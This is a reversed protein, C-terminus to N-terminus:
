LILKMSGYMGADNGLTALTIKSGRCGHFAIKEFRETTLDILYQGAKSVGGGIVFAEPNVVSSIVQLGQALYDCAREAVEIALKDGAKAADFVAKADVKEVDRLTSADDNEDLRIKALRAIGTASCYQELCGKNGCGCALEETYNVRIHGIEGAAGAAGTIIEDNIIVGGGVGTGLTVM